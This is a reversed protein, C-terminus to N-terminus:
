KLMSNAQQSFYADEYTDANLHTLNMLYKTQETNMKNEVCWDKTKKLEDSGYNIYETMSIPEGSVQMDLVRTNEKRLDTMKNIYLNAKANARNNGDISKYILSGSIGIVFLIATLMIFKVYNSKIGSLKKKM